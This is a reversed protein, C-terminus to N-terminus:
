KKAAKKKPAVKKAVVEPMGWLTGQPIDVKPLKLAKQQFEIAKTVGEQIAKLTALSDDKFWDSTFISVASDGDGIKVNVSFDDAGLASGSVSVFSTSDPFFKSFNLKESKPKAM